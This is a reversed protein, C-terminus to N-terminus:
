PLFRPQERIAAALMLGRLAKYLSHGFCGGSRLHSSGAAVSAITIALNARASAEKALRVAEWAADKASRAVELEAAQAERKRGLKKEELYRLMAGRKEDVWVAAALRTEIEEDSLQSLEEELKEAMARVSPERRTSSAM